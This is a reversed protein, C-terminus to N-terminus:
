ALKDTLALFVLAIIGVSVTGAHADPLSVGLVLAIAVLTYLVIRRVSAVPSGGIAERMGADIMLRAEALRDAGDEVVPLESKTVM